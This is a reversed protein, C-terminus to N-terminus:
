RGGGLVALRGCKGCDGRADGGREKGWGFWGGVKSSRSPQPTAPLVARLAIPPPAIPEAANDVGEAAAM